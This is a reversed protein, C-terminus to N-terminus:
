QGSARVKTTSNSLKVGFPCIVRTAEDNLDIEPWGIAASLTYTKGPPEGDATILKEAALKSVALLILIAKFELEEQSFPSTYLAGGYVSLDFVPSHITGDTGLPLYVM